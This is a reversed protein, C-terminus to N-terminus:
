TMTGLIASAFQNERNIPKNYFRRFTSPGSWGATRLITDLPVDAGAAASTTASRTSHSTYHVVDVGAAKLVTKVWRSLTARAIPQYPRQTTLFVRTVKTDRMARTRKMYERYLRVVCLSPDSYAPLLVEPQHAGPRSTKLLSSPRLILHTETCEVDQVQLLHITQGRQGSLLLLLTALKSVLTFLDLIVPIGLAKLHKLVLSVDWTTQVKSLHPRQNFVGKMFRTLLMTDHDAREVGFVSQVNTIASKASNITSYSKGSKFLSTLFDIIINM